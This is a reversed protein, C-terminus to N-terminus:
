IYGISKTRDDAKRALHDFGMQEIEGAVQVSPFQFDGQHPLQAIFPFKRRAFRQLVLDPAVQLRGPRQESKARM